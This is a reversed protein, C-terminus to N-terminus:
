GEGVSLVEVGVEATGRVIVEVFVQGGTGEM